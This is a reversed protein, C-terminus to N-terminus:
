SLTKLLTSLNTIFLKVSIALLIIGFMKQTIYIVSPGFFKEIRNAFKLMLYVIFVNAIVALLINIDQYQSRISLITTLSGAGVILPFVVPMFTADKALESDDNFIRVNLIMELSLIFVIMAGAIAFSSLDVHFLNLFAEGAYFFVVFMLFAMISAQLPRIVHGREQISIVVPTNGIVDIIAFLVVFASLFERLSFLGFM